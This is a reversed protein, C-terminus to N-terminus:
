VFSPVIQPAKTESEDESDSVWDEIIPVTPRTTHSLDQVPKTPSLETDSSSSSASFAMLAFNAPEEEAQYSWDYSGSKRSDKLSRCDRAFHRKRHYNYCEVKSMDFGMSTPGNAGLNKGTGHIELQSALKQLRDHIQDLSEPVLLTRM